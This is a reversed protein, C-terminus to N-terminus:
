STNAAAYSGDGAWIVRDAPLVQGPAITETQSHLAQYIPEFDQRTQAFLSKFSDIVFYSQQFDDIEYLTKFIRTLDFAIRSPSTSELAFRCESHSSMLGAGYLRLGDDTNILGYEVTYWYLRALSKLCNYKLSRLGGEGYAQMYDAFVPQALMPVHGFVDHFVDPEQIYDLQNESRIFRGAPFRRNALHEFFIADPVLHPVAVIEWGTLPKLKANLRAFDPIGGGTAKGELDLVDLGIFFDDVARGKLAKYQRAYLMDWVAHEEPTYGSWMQDITFDAAPSQGATFPDDIPM